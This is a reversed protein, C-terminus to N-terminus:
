SLEALHAACGTLAAFDDTVVSVGFQELFESFRGKDLFASLFSQETLHPAMARSVGGVLYIGGFPLYTLALDGVVQGFYEAFLQTTELAEADGDAARKMVEAASLPKTDGADRAVWSHLRSIGRGSLVDEVSAFGHIKELYRSLSLESETQVPLGSHGVESPPVHRREGLDYVPAANFGTGVGVVLKTPNADPSSSSVSTKIEIIHEDSIRGIAHGQAQLDNLVAVTDAHTSASLGKSTITWDLNTLQGQGNRVPGAAAVCVGSCRGASHGALYDALIAELDPHDANAYRRTTDALCTKGEAFAVRTNTGGIDAVLNLDEYARAM